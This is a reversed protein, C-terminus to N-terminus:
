DLPMTESAASVGQSANERQPILRLVSQQDKNNPDPTIPNGAGFPYEEVQCGNLKWGDMPPGDPNRKEGSWAYHGDYWPKTYHDDKGVTHTLISTKGRVEIASKANACINPYKVHDCIYTAYCQGQPPSRPDQGQQACYGDRKQPRRFIDLM